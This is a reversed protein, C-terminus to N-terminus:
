AAAEYAARLWGELEPDVSTPDPVLVHHQFRGPRVEVVEKVRKSRLPAPLGFSVYVDPPGRKLAMAPLWLWAFRIRNRWAVQTKTAAVEAPGIAAIADRVAKFVPLAQPYPRLLDAVDQVACSHSANRASFGQGCAPCRWSTKRGATM